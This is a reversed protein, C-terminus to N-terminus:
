DTILFPMGERISVDNFTTQLMASPDFGFKQIAILAYIITDCLEVAIGKLMEQSEPMKCFTEYIVLDEFDEVKKIFKKAKNAAEGAEGCVANTWSDAMWQRHGGFGQPKPMDCRELNIEAFEKITLHPISTLQQEYEKLQEIVFDDLRQHQKKINSWIPSSDIYTRVRNAQDTIIQEKKEQEVTIPYGTPRPILEMAQYIAELIGREEGGQNVYDRIYELASMVRGPKLDRWGLAEYNQFTQIVFSAIGEDSQSYGRPYCYKRIQRIEELADIAKDNIQEYGRLLQIVFNSIHQNNYRYRKTEQLYRQIARIQAVEDAIAEDIEQRDKKSSMIDPLAKENFPPKSESAICQAFFRDESVKTPLMEPEITDSRDRQHIQKIGTEKIFGFNTIGCNVCRNTGQTFHQGEQCLLDFNIPAYLQKIKLTSTDLAIWNHKAIIAIFDKEHTEFVTQTNRFTSFWNQSALQTPVILRTLDITGDLRGEIASLLSCAKVFQEGAHSQSSVQWFNIPLPNVKAGLDHIKFNTIDLTATM